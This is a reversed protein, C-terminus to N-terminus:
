MVVPRPEGLWERAKRPLATYHRFDALEEPGIVGSVGGPGRRSEWLHQLLVKTGEIYNYPIVRYGALYVAIVSGTIPPGRLVTVIGSNEDTDLNSVNWTAASTQSTLSQLTIVPIQYLRLRAQSWNWADFTHKETVTRAAVTENLHNEVAKTVGALMDRLEDDDEPNEPDMGLCRKAVSLALISPPTAEKVDFADTFAITPGSGVWRVTHRGAMTTIYPLRYAGTIAPPNTVAPVTSTGDPLSITLAMSACNAPAGSADTVDIAAPYVAGLDFSM